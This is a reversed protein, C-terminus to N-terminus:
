VEQEDQYKKKILIQQKTVWAKKYETNEFLKSFGTIHKLRLLEEPEMGLHNCIDADKWGQELMSFVMNGWAIRRRWGSM